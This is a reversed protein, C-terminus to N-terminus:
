EKILSDDYVHLWGYLYMDLDYEEQDDSNKVEYEYDDMLDNFLDTFYIIDTYNNKLAEEIDDDSVMSTYFDNFTNWDNNNIESLIINFLEERNKIRQIPVGFFVCCVLSEPAFAHGHGSYFQSGDVCDLEIQVTLSERRKEQEETTLM